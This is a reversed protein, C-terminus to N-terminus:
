RPEFRVERPAFRAIQTYGAEILRARAKDFDRLLHEPQHSDANITM